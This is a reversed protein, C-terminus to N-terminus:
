LLQRGHRLELPQPGEELGRRLGHGESLRLRLVDDATRLMGESLVHDELHAPPRQPSPAGVSCMTKWALRPGGLPGPAGLGLPHFGAQHQGQRGSSYTSDKVRPRHPERTDVHLHPAQAPPRPRSEPHGHPSLGGRCSLPARVGRSLM